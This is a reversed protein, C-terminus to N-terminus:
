VVFSLGALSRSNVWVMKPMIFHKDGSREETFLLFSMGTDGNFCEALDACCTCAYLCM